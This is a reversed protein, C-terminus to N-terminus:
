RRFGNIEVDSIALAKCTILFLWQSPQLWWSSAPGSTGPGLLWSGWRGGGNGARLESRDGSSKQNQDTVWYSECLQFVWTADSRSSFLVIWPMASLRSASYSFPSHPVEPCTGFRHMLLLPPYTSYTQTVTIDNKYIWIDLLQPHFSIGIEKSFMTRIHM